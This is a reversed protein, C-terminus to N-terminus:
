YGRAALARSTVMTGTSVTAITAPWNIQVTQGVISAVGYMLGGLGMWALPTKGLAVGGILMAGPVGIKMIFQDLTPLQPLLVDSPILVGMKRAIIDVIPTVVAGTVGYTIANRPTGLTSSILIRSPMRMVM